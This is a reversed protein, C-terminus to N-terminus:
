SISENVDVKKFQSKDATSLMKSSDEHMFDLLEMFDKLNGYGCFHDVDLFEFECCGDWKVVVNMFVEAEDVTEVLDGSQNYGNRNYLKNGKADRGVIEYVISRLTSSSYKAENDYIILFDKYEKEISM